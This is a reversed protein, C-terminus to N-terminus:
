FTMHLICWKRQTEIIKAFRVAQESARLRDYIELWFCHKGRVGFWGATFLGRDNAACTTCKTLGMKEKRKGRDISNRYLKYLM